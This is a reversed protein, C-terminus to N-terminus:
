IGAGVLRDLLRPEAIMREIVKAGGDGNTMVVFGSRRIRSAATFAHFGPNDGGHAIVNGGGTHLIQWGLAWSSRLPRDSVPVVPRVMMEITDDHLRLGTNPRPDLIAILFRAYDELTAHLGGASAYRAADAASPHAKTMPAGKVDHPRASRAALTNSWVYGSSTMDLPALVRARMFADIDSACVEVDGEYTGCVNRSVRGTLHTVVSQLYWYAEGSYGWREGPTFQLALPSAGSRWNPLGTTHALVQRATISDARSDNAVIRGPMYTVLPTDLDLVGQDHLQLVASAFVPKSMSGVEFITGDHIPAATERDSVGFGHQWFLQGDRVLGIALGPLIAEDMWRPLSQELDAVLSSPAPPATGAPAPAQRGCGATATGVLGLAAQGARTLFTRRPLGSSM